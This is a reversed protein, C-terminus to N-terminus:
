ADGCDQPTTRWPKQGPCRGGGDVYKIAAKLQAMAAIKAGVDGILWCVHLELRPYWAFIMGGNLDPWKYFETGEPHKGPVKIREGSRIDPGTGTM